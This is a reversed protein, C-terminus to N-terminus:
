NRMPFRPNRKSSDTRYCRPQDTFFYLVRYQVSGHHTRLEHVGDRLTDAYPRRLGIGKQKLLQIVDFIKAVAKDPQVERLWQILPIVGDRERFVFVRMM